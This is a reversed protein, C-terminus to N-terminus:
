NERTFSLHMSFHGVVKDTLLIKVEIKSTDRPLGSVAVTVDLWRPSITDARSEVDYRGGDGSVAEVEISCASLNLERFNAQFISFSLESDDVALKAEQPKVFFWELKKFVVDSTEVLQFVPSEMSSRVFLQIGCMKPSEELSLMFEDTLTFQIKLSGQWAAGSADGFGKVVRAIGVSKELEIRVNELDWGKPNDIRVEALGTRSDVLVANGKSPLLSPSRVLYTAEFSFSHLEKYEDDPHRFNVGLQVGSKGTKKLDKLTAVLEIRHGNSVSQNSVELKVCGCSGFTSEISIDKGTSNTILVIVKGVQDQTFVGFDLPEQLSGAKRLHLEGGWTCQAFFSYICLVILVRRM